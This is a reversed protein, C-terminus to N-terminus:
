LKEPLLFFRGDCSDIAKVIDKMDFHVIMPHIYKRYKEELIGYDDDLLAFVLERAQEETLLYPNM